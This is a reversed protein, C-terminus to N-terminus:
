ERERARESARESARARERKREREQVCHRVKRKESYLFSEGITHTKGTGPPGKVVVCDNSELTKLIAIQDSNQKLPLLFDKMAMSSSGHSDSAGATQTTDSASATKTCISKWLLPIEKETDPDSVIKLFRQADQSVSKSSNPKQRQFVIWTDYIKLEETIDQRKPDSLFDKVHVPNSTTLSKKFDNDLVRGIKNLLSKYTKRDFPNIPGKNRKVFQDLKKQAKVQLTHDKPDSSAEFRSLSQCLRIKTNIDVVLGIADSADPSLNFDHEKSNSFSLDVELLPCNIINDEDIRKRIVGIGCTVVLDSGGKSIDHMKKLMPKLERRGPKDDPIHRRCKFWFNSKSNELGHDGIQLAPPSCEKEEEVHLPTLLLKRMVGGLTLVTAGRMSTLGNGIPQVAKRLITCLNTRLDNEGTEGEDENEVPDNDEDWDSSDDDDEVWGDESPSVTKEAGVPGAPAPQGDLMDAHLAISDADAKGVSGGTGGGKVGAASALQVSKFGGSTTSHSAPESAKSDENEPEPYNLLEPKLLKRLTLDRVANFGTDKGDLWEPTVLVVKKPLDGGQEGANQGIKKKGDAELAKLGIMEVVIAQVCM